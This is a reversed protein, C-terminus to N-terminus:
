GNIDDGTREGNKGPATKPHETRHGVFQGNEVCEESFDMWRRIAKEEQITSLERVAASFDEFTM